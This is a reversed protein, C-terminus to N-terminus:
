GRRPQRFLASSSYHVVDSLPSSHGSCDACSLRWRQAVAGGLPRATGLGAAHGRYRVDDHSLLRWGPADQLRQRLAPRKRQAGGGPGLGQATLADSVVACTAPLQDEVDRPSQGLELTIEDPFPGCPLRPPLFGSLSCFTRWSRSLVYCSLPCRCSAPSRAPSTRDSRWFLPSLHGPM